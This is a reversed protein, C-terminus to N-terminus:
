FPLGYQNVRVGIHGGDLEINRAIIAVNNPGGIVHMTGRTIENTSFPLSAITTLKGHRNTQWVSQVRTRYYAPYGVVILEGESSLAHGQPVIEQLADFVQTNPWLPSHLDFRTVTDAGGAAHKNSTRSVIALARDNVLFAVTANLNPVMLSQWQSSFGHNHILERLGSNHEVLAFAEGLANIASHTLRTSHLIGRTSLTTWQGTSSAFRELILETTGFSNWCAKVHLVTENEHQLMRLTSSTMVQGPHPCAPVVSLVDVIGNSTVRFVGIEDSSPSSLRGVLLAMDENLISADLLKVESPLTTQWVIQSGYRSRMELRTEDGNFGSTEFCDLRQGSKAYVGCQSTRNVQSLGWTWPVQRQASVTYLHALEYSSSWLRRNFAQLHVFGLEDVAVTRSAPLENFMTPSFFQQQWDNAHAGFSCAILASCFFRKLM